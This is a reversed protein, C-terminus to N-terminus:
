QLLKSHLKLSILFSLFHIYKSIIGEERKWLLVVRCRSRHRLKVIVGILDRVFLEGIRIEITSHLQPVTKGNAHKRPKPNRLLATFLYVLRGDHCCHSATFKPGKATAASKSKVTSLKLHFAFVIIRLMFFLIDSLLIM